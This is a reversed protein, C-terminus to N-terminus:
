LVAVAVLRGPDGAVAPLGVLLATAVAVVVATSLHEARAPLGPGAETATM